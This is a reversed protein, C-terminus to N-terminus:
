HHKSRHRPSAGAPARKCMGLLPNDVCTGGVGSRSANCQAYSHYSCDYFGNDRGAGLVCVPDCYESSTFDQASAMGALLLLALGILAPRM